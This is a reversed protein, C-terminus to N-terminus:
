GLIAGAMVRWRGRRPQKLTVPEADEITTWPQGTRVTESLPSVRRAPEPPFEVDIEGSPESESGFTSRTARVDVIRAALVSANRGGFPELARGLAALSPVRNIREKELCRAIIAELEPPADPRFERLAHPRDATISSAIATLTEGDFPMKGTLLEFLVV